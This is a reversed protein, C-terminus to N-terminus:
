GCGLAWWEGSCLVTGLALWMEFSGVDSLGVVNIFGIMDGTGVADGPGAM